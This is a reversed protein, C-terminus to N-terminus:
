LITPHKCIAPLPRFKM